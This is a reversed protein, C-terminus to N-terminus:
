IRIGIVCVDDIQEYGHKWEYFKDNLRKKQEHMELNAGEILISKLNKSKLKKGKPGGFQDPYGDSFIYVMDGKNMEVSHTKFPSANEYKGIPQKDAKIEEVKNGGNRVMWLPNNAGSYCLSFSSQFHPKRNENKNVCQVQKKLSVLAIDMGDKVEEKSKEFEQNVIERTKNLIEGPEKLGFERVARNLANNCVVSVMAGPVGHGTCDAAAIFVTNEVKEFWYFDGAVVDKPLYLIFNNKLHANIEKKPPLIAQQIRKAYNISDTIEKHAEEIEKKQNQVEVSKEEITQKQRRTLNLRNIVFVILGLAVFLGLFLFYKQQTQKENRAKEENLKAQQIKEKEANLISDALSKKEYEYQYKQKYIEKINKENKLTDLVAIYKEYFDLGKNYNGMEKNIKWSFFYVKELLQYDAFKEAHLQANEILEKAKQYQKKLFYVEALFINNSAKARPDDIQNNLEIAKLFYMEATDTQGMDISLGGLSRYCKVKVSVEDVLNLASNYYFFASDTAGKKNHVMGLNILASSQLFVDNDTESFKLSKYYYEIARDYEEQNYYINGINMLASNLGKRENLKEFIKLAETYSKVAETVNGKKEYILGLNLFVNSLLRDDKNLKAVEVAQEYYDIAYDFEGRMRYINGVNLQANAIKDLNFKKISRKINKNFYFLASDSNDQLSWSIGIMNNASYEMDFSKESKAWNLMKFSYFRASDPKSFLYGDWIWSDFANMRDYTEKSEDTWVSKLSDLPDGALCLLCFVFSLFFTLYKMFHFFSHVLNTSFFIFYQLM